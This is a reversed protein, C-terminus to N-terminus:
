VTLAAHCRRGPTSNGSRKGYFGEDTVIWCNLSTLEPPSYRLEVSIRARAGNEFSLEQSQWPLDVEKTQTAGDPLRYAAVALGPRGDAFRAEYRVHVVTRTDATGADSADCAATGFSLSLLMLPVWRKGALRCWGTRLSSIRAKMM